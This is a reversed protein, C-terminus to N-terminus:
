NKRNTVTIAAGPFSDKVQLVTQLVEVTGKETKGSASERMVIKLNRETLQGHQLTEIRCAALQENEIWCGNGGADALKVQQPLNIRLDIDKAPKSGVNLLTVKYIATEGSVPTQKSLRSVARLLPAAANITIEHSKSIDTFKASTAKATVTIRSGDVRDSPMKFAIQLDAHQRPQLTVKQVPQARDAGQTVVGEVGPPLTAELTFEEADKGQNILQFPISAATGVELVPAATRFDFGFKIAERAAKLVALRERERRDAEAKERAIREREAREQALREQEAKMAVAREAALQENRVKLAAARLQKGPPLKEGAQRRKGLSILETEISEALPGAGFEKTFQNITQAAADNDGSRQHSRALMLLSVDRLPSDPYLQGMQNLKAISHLYDKGQFATFAEMFLSSDDLEARLQGPALLCFLLFLCSLFCRQQRHSFSSQM